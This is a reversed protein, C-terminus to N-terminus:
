FLENLHNGEEKSDMAAGFFPKGLEFASKYKKGSKKALESIPLDVLNAEELGLDGTPRYYPMETGIGLEIEREVDISSSQLTNYQDYRLKEDNEPDSGFGRCYSSRLNILAYSSM